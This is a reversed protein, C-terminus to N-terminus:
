ITGETGCLVVASSSLRVDMNADVLLCEGASATEGGSRISGQLPMIWRRRHAVSTLMPGASSVLMVNFAPGDILIRDTNGIGELSYEDAYPCGSSVSLAEEIHLERPRGYDYLRYTIDANQQFELLAIGAGIAHITGPPVYFFDGVSVPKWDVLEELYGDVAAKRIEAASLPALLGLGLTAGPEAELIYWCEAKGLSLNRARADEDSPHVQVSLKESTFIYKALLPLEAGDPADFWIEGVRRGGTEGFIRPIEMRGWPKEVQHPRLKM